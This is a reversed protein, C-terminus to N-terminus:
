INGGLSTVVQTLREITAVPDVRGSVKVETVKGEGDYAFITTLGSRDYVPDLPIFAGSAEDSEEFTDASYEEYDTVVNGLEIQV